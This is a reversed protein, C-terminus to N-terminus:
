LQWQLKDKSICENLWEVNRLLEEDDDAENDDVDDSCKESTGEIWFSRNLNVSIVWLQEFRYNKATFWQM